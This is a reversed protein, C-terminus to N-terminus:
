GANKLLKEWKVLISLIAEKEGPELRPPKEALELCRSFEKVDLPKAILDKLNPHLDRLKADKEPMETMLFVPTQVRARALGKLIRAADVKPAHAGIFIARYRKALAYHFGLAESDTSDTELRRSQCIREVFRLFPPPSDIHLIRSCDRVEMRDGESYVSRACIARNQAPGYARVFSPM